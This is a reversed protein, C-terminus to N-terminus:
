EDRGMTGVNWGDLVGLTDADDRPESRAGKLLEQAAQKAVRRAEGRLGQSVVEIVLLEGGVSLVGLLENEDRRSSYDWLIMPVDYLPSYGAGFSAQARDLRRSFAPDRRVRVRLDGRADTPALRRILLWPEAGFANVRVTSDGGTKRVTMHETVPLTLTGNPYRLVGQSLEAATSTVRHGPLGEIDLERAIVASELVRLLGLEVDRATQGHWEAVLTWRGGVGQLERTAYAFRVEGQVSVTSVERGPELSVDGPRVHDLRAVHAARTAAIRDSDASSRTLAVSIGPLDPLEVAILTTGFWDVPWIRAAAPLQFDLLVEPPAGHPAVFRRSRQDRDLGNYLEPMSRQANPVFGLWDIGAREGIDLFDSQAERAPAIFEPDDLDVTERSGCAALLACLLVPVSFFCVRM